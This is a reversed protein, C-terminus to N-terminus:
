ATLNIGEAQIPGLYLDQYYLALVLTGVQVGFPSPNLLTATASVQIGGAPDDAPLQVDILKVDELNNLGKIVIDKQFKINKYLPFFSFAEVHVESCNTRWTFVPETVLYESFLGFADV